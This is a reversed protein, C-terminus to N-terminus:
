WTIDINYIFIESFKQNKKYDPESNHHNQQNTRFIEGRKDVLFFLNEWVMAVIWIKGSFNLKQASNVEVEVLGEYMARQKTM